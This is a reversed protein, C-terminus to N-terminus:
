DIYWGQWISYSTEENNGIFKVLLKRDRPGDFECFFIKQWQWLLLDWNEVIITESVWILSSKIHAPSNWEFHKFYAKNPVLEEFFNLMDKAVDPDYGENITVACTTHPVYLVIVWSFTKPILNQIEETIDILENREYTKISLIKM